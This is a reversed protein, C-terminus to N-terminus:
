ASHYLSLAYALWAGHVIAIPFLVWAVRVLKLRPQSGTVVIRLLLLALLVSAEPRALAALSWWAAPVLVRNGWPRRSVYSAFGAITLFVALATEMGTASWRVLWADGAFALTGLAWALEARGAGFGQESVWSELFRRLFIAFAVIALAGFLMSLGRALLLLDVGTRGLFGLGLSWLPSTTGFVPQGVNFVLGLGDRFHKAFVLHIFTDDTVSMRIPWLLAGYLALAALMVFGTRRRRDALRRRDEPTLAPKM